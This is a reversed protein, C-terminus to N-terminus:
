GDPGVKGAKKWDPRIDRDRGGRFALQMAEVARLMEEPSKKRRAGQKVTGREPMFDKVEFRRARKKKDRYIEALISPTIAARYDDVGCGFPEVEYFKQWGLFARAPMTDIM